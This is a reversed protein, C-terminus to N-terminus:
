PFSFSEEVEMVWLIDQSVKWEEQCSTMMVCFPCIRIQGEALTRENRIGGCYGILSFSSIEERENRFVV